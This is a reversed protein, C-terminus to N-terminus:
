NSQTIWIASMILLTHLDMMADLNVGTFAGYQICGTFTQM